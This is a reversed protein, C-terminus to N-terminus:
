RSASRGAMSQPVFRLARRTSTPRGGQGQLSRACPRARAASSPCRADVGVVPAVQLLVRTVVLPHARLALQRRQEVVQGVAWHKRWILHPPRPASCSARRGAGGGRHRQEPQQAVERFRLAVSSPPEHRALGRRLEGPVAVTVDLSRGPVPREHARAQHRPRRPRGAPQDERDDGGSRARRTAERGAPAATSRPTTPVPSPGGCRRPCGRPAANSRGPAAAAARTELRAPATM